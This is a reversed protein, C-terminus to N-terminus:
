YVHPIQLGGAIVETGGTATPSNFVARTTRWAGTTSNYVFGRYVDGNSPSNPFDLAM